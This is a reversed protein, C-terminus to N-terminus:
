PFQAKFRSFFLARISKGAERRTRAFPRRPRMGRVSRAFVVTGGTGSVPGAGVVFRLVKRAKPTIRQRRPGYLGTGEELGRLINYGSPSLSKGGVKAVIGSLGQEIRYTMRGRTQSTRAPIRQRLQALTFVATAEMAARQAKLLRANTIRGLLRDVGELRAEM